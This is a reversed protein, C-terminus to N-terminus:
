EIEAANRFVYQRVCVSSVMMIADAGEDGSDVLEGRGFDNEGGSPRITPAVLPM